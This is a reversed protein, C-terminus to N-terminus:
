KGTTIKRHSIILAKHRLRCETYKDITYDQYADKREGVVPDRLPGCETLTNSQAKQPPM